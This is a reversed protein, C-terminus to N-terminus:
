EYDTFSQIIQEIGKPKAYKGYSCADKGNNCEELNTKGKGDDIVSPINLYDKVGTVINREEKM